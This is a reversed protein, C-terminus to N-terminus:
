TCFYFVAKLAGEDIRRVEYMGMAMAFAQAITIISKRTNCSKGSM